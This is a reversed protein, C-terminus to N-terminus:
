KKPRKQRASGIGNYVSKPIKKRRSMKYYDCPAFTQSGKGQVYLSIRERRQQEMKAKEPIDYKGLYVGVGFYAGM